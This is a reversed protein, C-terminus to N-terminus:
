RRRGREKIYGRVESMGMGGTSNNQSWTSPDSDIVEYTGPPIVVNPQVEWVANRTGYMGDTGVAQWPGYVDGNQARLSITGPRKGRQRNWHYTNIFTIRYSSRITFILSSYAGNYAVGTDWTSIILEEEIPMSVSYPHYAAGAAGTLALFVAFVLLGSFCFKGRM